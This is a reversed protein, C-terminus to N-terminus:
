KIGMFDRMDSLVDNSYKERQEELRKLEKEMYGAPEGRIGYIDKYFAEDIYNQIKKDIYLPFYIRKKYYLKKFEDRAAWFQSQIDAL